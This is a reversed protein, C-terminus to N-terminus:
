IEIVLYEQNVTALSGLHLKRMKLDAAATDIVDKDAMKMAIMIESKNPKDVGHTQKAPFVVEM